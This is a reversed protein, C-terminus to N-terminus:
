ENRTYYPNENFMMDHKKFLYVSIMGLLSTGFDFFLVFLFMVVRRAVTSQGNVSARDLWDQAKNGHFYHTGNWIMRGGFLLVYLAIGVKCFNVCCADEPQVMPYTVAELLARAPLAFFLALILDTCASWLSLSEDVDSANDVDLTCLVIGLAVFTLLFLVFLARFFAIANTGPNRYTFLLEFLILIVLCMPIFMLIHNAAGYWLRFTVLDWHIPVLSIVGHYLQWIALFIWFLVIQDIRCGPKARRISYGIFFISVLGAIFFLVSIAIMEGYNCHMAPYANFCIFTWNPGTANPAVSMAKAKQASSYL